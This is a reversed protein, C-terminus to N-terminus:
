ASSSSWVRLSAFAVHGIAVSEHIRRAIRYLVVVTAINAIAVLVELLAGGRGPHGRRVQVPRESSYLM